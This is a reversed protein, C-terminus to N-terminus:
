VQVIIQTASYGERVIGKVKQRVADFGKAQLKQDLDMAGIIDVGLVTAFDNLIADPVVGAIEQIDSATIKSPPSTSTSLRSASQM